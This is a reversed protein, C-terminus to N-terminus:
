IINEDTRSNDNINRKKLDLRERKDLKLDEHIKSIIEEMQTMLNKIERISVLINESSFCTAHKTFRLHLNYHNSILDIFKEHLQLYDNKM